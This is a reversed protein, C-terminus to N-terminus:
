ENEGWDCDISCSKARLPCCGRWSGAGEARNLRRRVPAKDHSCGLSYARVGRTQSRGASRGDQLTRLASTSVELWFSRLHPTTRLAVGSAHNAVLGFRM